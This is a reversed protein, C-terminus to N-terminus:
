RLGAAPAAQQSTTSQTAQPAIVFADVSGDGTPVGAGAIVAPEESVREIAAPQEVASSTLSSVSLLAVSKESAGGDGM